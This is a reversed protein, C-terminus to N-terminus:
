IVVLCDYTSYNTFIKASIVIFSVVLGSLAWSRENCESDENTKLNYRARPTDYSAKSFNDSLRGRM